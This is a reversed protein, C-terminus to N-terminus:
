YNFCYSELGFYINEEEMSCLAWLEQSAKLQEQSYASMGRRGAQQLCSLFSLFTSDLPFWLCSLFAHKKFFIRLINLGPFTCIFSDRAELALAGSKHLQSWGETRFVDSGPTWQRRWIGENVNWHM